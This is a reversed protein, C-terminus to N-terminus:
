GALARLEPAELALAAALATASSRHGAIMARADARAAAHEFMGPLEARESAELRRLSQYGSVIARMAPMPEALSLAWDVLAEALDLLLPATCATGAPMLGTVRNRVFLFCAPGPSGHVAGTPLPGHSRRLAQSIREVGAGAPLRASLADGDCPESIFAPHDAGVVHLRALLRGVELLQPTSAQQPAITEGAPWAYCAAAAPGSPGELQAILNGGHARRPAPSPFRSEALLDFLTAEFALWLPSAASILLLQAGAPAQVRLAEAGPLLSPLEDVRLPTPPLEFGLLAQPRLTNALTRLM